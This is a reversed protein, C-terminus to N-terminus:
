LDFSESNIKKKLYKKYNQKDVIHFKPLPFVLKGGKKIYKIEEKIVESRFSWILVFLYEPKMKRMKEKSIIKINSGPTYKNIKFKNADCILPLDKNSIKCHNLIVNGKTSAGYGVVDNSNMKLFSIINNKVNDVRQGFRRYAAHNIKKEFIIQNLIKKKNIKHYSNKKACVVEISGGNIENITFDIIKLSNKEIIKKFSTLTYYAVHEHCIQDYTLNKLLLPFYSFESIWLGDESLIDNVDKCFVNPKLLDYFMAFSTILSFKKTKLKNKKIFNSLKRKSFFDNILFINKKYNNKFVQASPDIGFIQLNKSKSAFFNLFSGDNSGIDIINSNNKFDIKKSYRLYKKYLHKIMNTSLSTKYGYNSGYMESVPTKTSFQVLKCRSCEFLNLPYKKLNIKKHTYFASSIPQSGLTFIKKLKKSYCNICKM